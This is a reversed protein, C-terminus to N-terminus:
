HAVLRRLAFQAIPAYALVVPLPGDVRLSTRSGRPRAFISHELALRLPGRRVTWSWRRRPEDVEDIEFDVFVGLPGHVRGIAGARLRAESYEVRSIQPAWETWRAPRAYREWAEAPDAAGSASLTVTTM